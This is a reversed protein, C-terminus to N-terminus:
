KVFRANLWDAYDRVDGYDAMEVVLAIRKAAGLPVRLAFPVDGGRIIKTETAVNWKGGDTELYVRFIVSGDGQAADDVAVEAEFHKTGPPIDYALRSTAPMGIGKLYRQGQVRLKSDPVSRDATFEQQWDLLPVQKFGLTRLDSLYTVNTSLPQLFVVRSWFSEPPEIDNDEARAALTQGAALTVLVRDGKVAVSSTLVVSGDALGLWFSGKSTEPASREALAVAAVRPQPIELPTKGGPVLLRFRPTADDDANGRTIELLTGTLVDGSVLLLRDHKADRTFFEAEWRDREQANASAQYVIGQVSARTLTNTRWLGPRRVSEFHLEDSSLGTVDGAIAGGDALLLYSGRRVDVPAGWVILDSLRLSRVDREGHLHLIDKDLRASNAAYTTGDTFRALPLPPEASLAGAAL